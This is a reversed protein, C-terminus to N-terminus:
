RTRRCREYAQAAQRLRANKAAESGMLAATLADLERAQGIQTLRKAEAKIAPDIPPCAPSKPVSVPAPHVLVAPVTEAGWQPLEASCGALLAATAALSAIRM